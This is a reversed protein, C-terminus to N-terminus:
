VSEKLVSNLIFVQWLWRRDSLYDSIFHSRVNGLLFYCSGASAANHWSEAVQLLWQRRRQQISKPDACSFVASLSKVDQWGNPNLM